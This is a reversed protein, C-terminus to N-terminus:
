NELLVKNAFTEENVSSDIADTGRVIYEALRNVQKESMIDM